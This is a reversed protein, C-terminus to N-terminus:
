IKKIIKKLNNKIQNDQIGFNLNAEIFGLKNGCDFRKGSFEIGYLGPSSILSTMSDTLQIENGYGKKAKGLSNFIKTNLIYRGVVSLNSPANAKDPKEVLDSISYFNKLKSKIKIVGYSSVKEIPVKQLAVVSGKNTQEYINMLQQIAPIKSQIIDDPLIVAFDENKTFFNRACWIAHGLGKPEDQICFSFNGLKNQVRILKLKDLNKKKKLTIELMQSNEFHELVLNKKSSTIFIMEEIGAKSAETVAWEIVPRDLITLMEKPMSKTAPLFRTGLGAIPFIAKSILKKMLKFTVQFFFFRM